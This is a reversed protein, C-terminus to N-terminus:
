GPDSGTVAPARRIECPYSGHSATGCVPDLATPEIILNLNAGDPSDQRRM